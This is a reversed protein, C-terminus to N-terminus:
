FSNLQVIQVDQVSTQSPNRLNDSPSTSIAMAMYKSPPEGAVGGESSSSPSVSDSAAPGVTRPLRTKSASPSAGPNYSFPSAPGTGGDGSLPCGCGVLPRRRGPVAGACRGGSSGSRHTWKATIVQRGNFLSSPGSIRVEIDSHCIRASPPPWESQAPTLGQCHYQPASAEAPL